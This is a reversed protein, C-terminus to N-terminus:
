SERNKARADELIATMIQQALPYPIIASIDGPVGGQTGTTSGRPARLHCPDGNKCTPHLTIPPWRDSWLDTPKMRQEGYQCYTVTRRELWPWDREVIRRLKARPNELIFYTPQLWSVVDLADQVHHYATLAAPTKPHHDTTWNHGIRM